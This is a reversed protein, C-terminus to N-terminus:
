GMYLTDGKEVVRMTEADFWEPLGKENLIYQPKANELQGNVCSELIVQALMTTFIFSSFKRM